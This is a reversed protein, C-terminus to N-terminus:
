EPSINEEGGKKECSVNVSEKLNIANTINDSLLKWKRFRLKTTYLSSAGQIQLSSSRLIVFLSLRFKFSHRSSALAFWYKDQTPVPFITITIRVFGVDAAFTSIMLTFTNPAWMYMSVQVSQHTRNAYNLTPHSTRLCTASDQERRIEPGGFLAIVFLVQCKLDESCSTSDHHYM